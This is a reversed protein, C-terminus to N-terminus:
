WSSEAAAEDLGPITDVHVGTWTLEGSPKILFLAPTGRVGFAKRVVDNHDLVIRALGALSSAYAETADSGSVVVIVRSRGGPWRAAVTQLQKRTRRCSGCGPVLFAVLTTGTSSTDSLAEGDTDHVLFRGVTAGVALAKAPVGREAAEWLLESNRQTERAVSFLLLVNLASVMALIVVATVLVPM